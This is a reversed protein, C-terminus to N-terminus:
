LPGGTVTDASKEDAATSALFCHRLHQPCIHGHLVKDVALSANLFSHLNYVNKSM